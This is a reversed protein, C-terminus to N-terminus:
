VLRFSSNKQDDNLKNPKTDLVCLTGLAHGSNSVLPAGAYFRIFPSGEVFPNDFFRKDKSADSVEMLDEPRNIAHACFSLERPTESVDLGTKAKFWQRKEDILSVLSIPTGCIQAAISTIVDFPKEPLTDLIEFSALDELREPENELIQALEM